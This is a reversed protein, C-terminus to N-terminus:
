RPVFDIPVTLERLGKIPSQLTFQGKIQYDTFNGTQRSNLMGNGLQSLSVKVPLKIKTTTNKNLKQSRKLHTQAWSQGGTQFQYALDRITMSFDNPNNVNMTITFIMKTFSIEEISLSDFTISPIQPITLDGQKTTKIPISRLLPNDVFLEASASYSLTNTQKMENLLAIAEKFRITLPVQLTKSSSGTIHFGDSQAGEFMSKDNLKLKYRYEALALQFTNPNTVNLNLGLSITDLSVHEISIGKISLEPEQIARSILTECGTILFTILFLTAISASSFAPHTMTKEMHFPQFEFLM